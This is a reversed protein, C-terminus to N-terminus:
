PPVPWSWRWRRLPRSLPAQGQLPPASPPGHRSTEVAEHLVVLGHARFLDGGSEERQRARVTIGPSEDFPEDSSIGPEDPLALVQPGGGGGRERDPLSRVDDEVHLGGTRRGSFPAGDRLESGELEHASFYDVLERREDVRPTRYVGKHHAQGAYRVAHDRIGRRDGLDHWAELLKDLTANEDPVVDM